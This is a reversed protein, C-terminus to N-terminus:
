TRYYGQDTEPAHAADPQGCNSVRKAFVGTMKKTEFQLAGRQNIERAAFSRRQESPNSPRFGVFATGFDAVPILIFWQLKYILM